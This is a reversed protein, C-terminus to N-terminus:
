RRAARSSSYRVPDGVRVSSSQLLPRKNASNEEDHQEQEQSNACSYLDVRFTRAWAGSSARDAITCYHGLM